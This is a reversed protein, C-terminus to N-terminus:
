PNGPLTNPIVNYGIVNLGIRTRQM